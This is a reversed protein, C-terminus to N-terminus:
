FKSVLIPIPISSIWSVISTDTNTYNFIFLTEKHFFILQCIHRVIGHSLELLEHVALAVELGM